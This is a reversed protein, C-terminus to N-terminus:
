RISASPSPFGAPGIKMFTFKETNTLSENSFGALVMEDNGTIIAKNFGYNPTTQKEQLEGKANLTFFGGSTFVVAESPSKVAISHSIGIGKEEYVGEWIAKGTYDIKLVIPAGYGASGSVWINGDSDTDIANIMGTGYTQAWAAKGDADTKILVSVPHGGDRATFFGGILLDGNPLEKIARYASAHETPKNRTWLEKGNADIKTIMMGDSVALFGGDRTEIIANYAELGEPGFHSVWLDQGEADVKWIVRQNDSNGCFVYGGDSTPVIDLAVDPTQQAGSLQKAWQAGGTANTKILFVDSDRDANTNGICVFGGDHTSKVSYANSTNDTLQDYVRVFEGQSFATSALLCLSSLLIFNKM